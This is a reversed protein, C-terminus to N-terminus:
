TVTLTVTVNLTDGSVVSRAAAFDAECYLIGTTGGKTNVSTLFAGRVTLTANINFAAVSASNDISGAAATGGTWVVRTANSYPTGEIWGAHSGMTDAAAYASFSANDVLGVYWAATYSAGKFYNTLLDNKGVTTVINHVDVAWRLSGDPRRCEVHWTSSVDFLERFTVPAILGADSQVGLKGKGELM